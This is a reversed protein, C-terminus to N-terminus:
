QLLKSSNSECYILGPGHNKRQPLKTWLAFFFFFTYLSIISLHTIVAPTCIAGILSRKRPRQHSGKELSVDEFNREHELSSDKFESGHQLLRDESSVTEELSPRETSTPDMATPHFSQHQAHFLSIAHLPLVSLITTDLSSLLPYWQYSIM